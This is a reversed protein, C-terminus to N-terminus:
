GNYSNSVFVSLIAAYTASVGITAQNSTKMTTSVLLSFVLIWISITVLHAKLSEQYSVTVLPIVMFVGAALAVLFRTIVEALFITNQYSWKHQSNNNPEDVQEEDRTSKRSLSWYRFARLCKHIHRQFPDQLSRPGLDVRVLRSKYIEYPHLDTRESSQREDDILSFTEMAMITSFAVLADDYEKLLVRLKLITEESVIERESPINPDIKSCRLGLRDKQTPELGLNLGAQYIEHDVKAIEEELFRLNLLHSTKFRRFGYLTLNNDETSHRWLKRFLTKTESRQQSAESSPEPNPLTGAHSSASEAGVSAPGKVTSM